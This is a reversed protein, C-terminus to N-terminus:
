GAAGASEGPLEEVSYFTYTRLREGSDPARRAWDLPLRDAQKVVVRVFAPSRNSFTVGREFVLLLRDIDYSGRRIPQLRRTAVPSMPNALVAKVSPLLLLSTQVRVRSHLQRTIHRWGHWTFHIPGFYSNEVPLGLLNSAYWERAATRLGVNLPCGFATGKVAPLDKPLARRVEALIEGRSSPGFVNQRSVVITGGEADSPTIRRWFAKTEGKPPADVCVLFVPLDLEAWLQRHAKTITVAFGDPRQSFRASTRVQVDFRHRTACGNHVDLVTADMGVDRSGHFEQMICGWGTEVVSRVYDLGWQGLRGQPTTHTM